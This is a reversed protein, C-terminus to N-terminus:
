QTRSLCTKVEQAMHEMNKLHKEDGIQYDQHVAKSSFMENSLADNHVAHVREVPNRKSHFEAFSKQTISKLQLIRALRVLWMRVLPNSPAESPGNDVIFVFHEKLKGTDPNRFFNDLAPNALLLFIENFVRQVTEPEFYSLNLLTAATGTRRVSFHHDEKESEAVSLDTEMFLHSMPTVSNHVTRNWDHDPLTIKRWTKGPKQVPSVDANIKAKADKSDIMVNHSQLHAYDMTLNVNHTSWHLNIVFQEVGTRPPKHLSLCANVGKGSHHRKAQYTGERYNQTYNFCSSLCINFREPALALITERAHKMITNSDAARYLVTDTLRPHSELGGGARDIRDEEGFAFELIAALEPFEECKLHRGRGRFVHRLKELKMKQLARHNQKRRGEGTLTSNDNREIEEKMQEFLKLNLAVLDKSRQFSRKDQVGALNAMFTASTIRTLIAKFTDRDRKSDMYKLIMHYDGEIVQKIKENIIKQDDEKKINEISNMMKLLEGTGNNEAIYGKEQIYIQAVNLHKSLIELLRSSEMRSPDKLGKLDKYHKILVQTAVIPGNELIYKALSIMASFHEQQKLSGSSGLKELLVGINEELTGSVSGRVLFKRENKQMIVGSTQREESRLINTVAKVGRDEYWSLSPGLLPILEEPEEGVSSTEQHTTIVEKSKDDCKKAEDAPEKSTEVVKFFSSIKGSASTKEQVQGLKVDTKAIPATTAPKQKRRQVTPHRKYKRSSFKAAARKKSAPDKSLSEKLTPFDGETIKIKPKETSTHVSKTEKWCGSPTLVVEVSTRKPEKVEIEAARKEKQPEKLGITKTAASSKQEKLSSEALTPFDEEILEFKPSSPITYTKSDEFKESGIDRRGRTKADVETYSPLNVDFERIRKVLPVFHNPQWSSLPCPTMRTWILSVINTEEHPCSGCDRGVSILEDRPYFVGHLTNKIARLAQVDPYVSHIPRGLVSALALIHFQSSYVFPKTTKQALIEVARAANAIQGRYTDEAEKDSLFINFIVPASYVSREEIEAIQPHNAYFESHAFLESVTLLRLVSSLSENGSLAISAANFLCNGNGTTKIPIWDKFDAPLLSKTLADEGRGIIKQLLVNQSQVFQGSVLPLFNALIEQAADKSTLAKSLEMIQMDNLPDMELVAISHAFFVKIIQCAPCLQKLNKGVYINAIPHKKEVFELSIM